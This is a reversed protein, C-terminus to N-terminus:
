PTCLWIYISKFKLAEFIRHPRHISMEGDVQGNRFFVGFYFNAVKQPFFMGSHYTLICFCYELQKHIYQGQLMICYPPFRNRYNNFEFKMQSSFHIAIEKTSM